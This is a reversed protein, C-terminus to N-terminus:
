FVTRAFLFALVVIELGWHGPVRGQGGGGGGGRAGKTAAAGRGQRGRGQGGGRPVGGELPPPPAM